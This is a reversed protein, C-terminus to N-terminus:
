ASAKAEAPEQEVGRQRWEAQPGFESKCWEGWKQRFTPDAMRRQWWKSEAARIANWYVEARVWGEQAQVRRAEAVRRRIFSDFSPDKLFEPRNDEREEFETMAKGEFRTVNISSVSIM